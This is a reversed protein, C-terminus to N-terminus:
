KAKKVLLFISPGFFSKALYPQSIEEFKLLISMPVIKKVLTNRFNSVSLVKEVKFGNHALTKIVTKPNHNVFAIVDSKRNKMSRIDIPDEPVKKAQLFFKIRNLFHAYNAIELILYGDDTLVREFEKFVPIPDPLHHMVRIMTLLDISEAPAQLSDAEVLSLKIGPHKSLYDKAIELQKDSPEALTVHDAYEELLPCLRGYGGGVDIASYFHKDKLLRRIAIEESANEYDRGVWYKTYNFNPDNYQNAKISKKNVSM